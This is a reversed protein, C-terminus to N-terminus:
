CVTRPNNRAGVDALIARQKFLTDTASATINGALVNHVWCTPTNRATRNRHSPTTFPNPHTKCADQKGCHHHQSVHLQRRESIANLARNSSSELYQRTEWKRQRTTISPATPQRHNGPGMWGCWPNPRSMSWWYIRQPRRQSATLQVYKMKGKDASCSSSVFPVFRYVPATTKACMPFSKM